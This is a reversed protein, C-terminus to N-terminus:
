KRNNKIEDTKLNVHNIKFFLILKLKKNVCKLNRWLEGITIIQKTFMSLICINIFITFVM